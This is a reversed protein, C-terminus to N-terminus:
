SSFLTAATALWEAADKESRFVRVAAFRSDAMVEFV